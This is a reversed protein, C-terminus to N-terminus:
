NPQKSKKMWYNQALYFSVQYAVFFYEGCIHFLANDLHSEQSSM